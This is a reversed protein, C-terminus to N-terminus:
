HLVQCHMTGQEQCGQYDTPEVWHTVVQVQQTCCAKGWYHPDDWIVQGWVLWAVKLNEEWLYGPRHLPHHRVSNGVERHCYRQVTICWIGGWLGRCVTGYSRASDYQQHWYTPEWLKKTHHFMKPNCGSRAAYWPTTWTVTWVTTLTHTFFIRSSLMGSWSWISNTGTSQTHTDGPSRTNLSPRSSPTLSACATFSVSNSCDSDMRMWKGWELLVLALPGHTMTQVWEPMSTAWSFLNSPVPSTGSPPHLTRMSNM